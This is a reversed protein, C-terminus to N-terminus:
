FSLVLALGFVRRMAGEAREDLRLIGALVARGPLAARYASARGQRRRMADVLSTTHVFVEGHGVAPGALPQVSRARGDHGDGGGRRRWRCGSGVDGCARRSRWAWGRQHLLLMAGALDDGVVEGGLGGAAIQLLGDLRSRCRGRSTVMVTSSTRAWASATTLSAPPVM